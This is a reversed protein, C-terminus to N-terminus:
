WSESVEEIDKGLLLFIFNSSIWVLIMFSEIVLFIYRILMIEVTLVVFM